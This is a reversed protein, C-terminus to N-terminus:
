LNTLSFDTNPTTSNNNYNFGHDPDSSTPSSHIPSNFGDSFGGSPTNVSVLGSSVHASPSYQPAPSLTHASPSYQPAPSLTHASPSPSYQTASNPSACFHNNIQPHPKLQKWSQTLNGLDSTSLGTSDLLRLTESLTWIYNKAFRLTEIKTLKNDDPLIPLILRLRELANNLSHMRNRERDNAKMRRNKKLKLVLTPSKARSRISSRGQGGSQGRVKPAKKNSSNNSADSSLESMLSTSFSSECDSSSSLNTSYSDMKEEEEEERKKEKQEEKRVKKRNLFLLYISSTEIFPISSLLSHTLPLSFKELSLIKQPLSNESLSPSLYLVVVYNLSLTREKTGPSKICYIRGVVERGSKRERGRKRERRM